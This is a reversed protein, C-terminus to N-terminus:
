DKNHLEPAPSTGAYPAVADPSAMSDLPALSPVDGGSAGYRKEYASRIIIEAARIRGRYLLPNRGYEAGSQSWAESISPNRAQQLAAVFLPFEFPERVVIGAGAADVHHGYGCAGTTVVPLGNVIAELIVTGTTDYRAPHVLLDAAAMLHCIDERHGLWKVRRAMGLQRVRRALRISARNTESLGAILLTADPFKALAKIARDTGKTDPQVGISLWVWDADSLGLEFRVSQRVGNTRCEPQRRALTLTPPVLIMRESETNWASQYENVQNQSLLITTSKGGPAFSSKEIETYTRYRSLLRLPPCKLVRYAMSADACYLVDLGLLKDFGVILDYRGSVEKLFDCSFQYQRGHNTIAGNQLLLIPIGEALTHDHLRCAYIVVDHGQNRILKAIEICDRQLGGSPFLSVIAFAIRM